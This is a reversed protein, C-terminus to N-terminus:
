RTRMAARRAAVEVAIAQWLEPARSLEALVAAHPIRIVTVPETTILDHPMEGGDVLPLLGYPWTTTEVKFTVRRGTPSSVSALATGEVLLM